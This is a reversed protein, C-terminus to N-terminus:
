KSSDNKKWGQNRELALWDLNTWFGNWIPNIHFVFILKEEFFHRPVFGHRISFYFNFNKKESKASTTLDSRIRFVPTGDCNQDRTPGNEEENEMVQSRDSRISCNHSGPDIKRLPYPEVNWAIIWIYYLDSHTLSQSRTVWGPMNHQTQACVM